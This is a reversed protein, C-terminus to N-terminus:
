LMDLCANKIDTILFMMFNNEDLFCGQTLKSTKTCLKINEKYFCM